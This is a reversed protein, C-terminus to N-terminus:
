THGTKRRQSRRVVPDTFNGMPRGDKGPCLWDSIEGVPVEVQAGKKLKRCHFPESMLHGHAYEPELAFVQLWMHETQGNEALFPAKVAYRIDDPQRSHFAAVFDPWQERAKAMATEIDEGDPVGIVPAKVEQRFVLLPNDGALDAELESSWLNIYNHQPCFIGLTDEDALAAIAKGIMPYAANEAMASEEARVLDVSLWSEHEEIIKALRLNTVRQVVGEPDDFYPTDHNHLTFVMAVPKRLVVVYISGEGGVFGDEGNDDDEDDGNSNVDTASIKLNWAESLAEALVAPELYRQRRRLHVLSILPTDDDDAANEDDPPPNNQRRKGPRDKGAGAGTGDEGEETESALFGKDPKRWVLWAMFLFVFTWSARSWTFSSFVLFYLRHIGMAALALSAAQNSRPVRLVLALAVVALASAFLMAPLSKFYSGGAWFAWASMLLFVVAVHRNSVIRHFVDVFRSFM